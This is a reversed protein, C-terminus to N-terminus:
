RTNRFQRVQINISAFTIGQEYQSALDTEGQEIALFEDASEKIIQQSGALVQQKQQLQQSEVGVLDIYRNDM